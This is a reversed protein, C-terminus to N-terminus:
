GQGRSQAEIKAYMFGVGGACLLAGGLLAWIAGPDKCIRVQIASEPEIVSKFYIGVDEIFIPDSPKLISEKVTNGGKDLILAAQWDTDYGNEDTKVVVSDLIISLRGRVNEINGKKIIKDIKYGGSATLLHGLMVFLVGIHMIQPSLKLLLNKTSLRLVADATCFITSVALVGLMCIMLYIWWTISINGSSILWKFLPMDDIGSFFALNNPLSLSGIFLIVTFISFLIFATKLSLLFGTISKFM